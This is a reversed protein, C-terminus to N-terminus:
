LVTIFNCQDTLRPPIITFVYLSCKSVCSQYIHCRHLCLQGLVDCIECAASSPVYCLVPVHISKNVISRGGFIPVCFLKCSHFFCFCIENSCYPAPSYRNERGLCNAMRSPLSVLTRVLEEWLGAHGSVLAHPHHGEASSPVQCQDWM